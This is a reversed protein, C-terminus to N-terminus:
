LMELKPQVVYEQLVLKEGVGWAALYKGSLNKVARPLINHNLQFAQAIRNLSSNLAFCLVAADTDTAFIREWPDGPM